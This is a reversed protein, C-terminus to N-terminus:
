VHMPQGDSVVDTGALKLFRGGLVLMLPDDFCRHAVVLPHCTGVVTVRFHCWLKDSKPYGRTGKILRNIVRV